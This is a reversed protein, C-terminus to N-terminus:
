QSIVGPAQGETPSRVKIYGVAYVTGIQSWEIHHCGGASRQRLRRGPIRSGGRFFSVRLSDAIIDTALESVESREKIKVLTVYMPVDERIESYIHRPYDCSLLVFQNEKYECLDFMVRNKPLDLDSPEITQLHSGNNPNLALIRGRVGGSLLLTGHSSLFLLGEPYIKRGLVIGDIEWATKGDDCSTAEVKNNSIAVILKYPNPIYCFPAYNEIGINITRLKSFKKSSSDLELVGNDKIKVFLRNKEGDCMRGFTEGEIAITPENDSTPDILKINLCEGCSQVFFEQGEVETCHLLTIHKCPTDKKDPGDSKDVNKEEVKKMPLLFLCYPDDNFGKGCIIVREHKKMVTFDWYSRIDVKRTHTHTKDITHFTQFIFSDDDDPKM